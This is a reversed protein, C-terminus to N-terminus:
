GKVTKSRKQAFTNKRKNADKKPLEGEIREAADYAESIMNRPFSGAIRGYEIARVERAIKDTLVLLANAPAPTKIAKKDVIEQTVAYFSDIGVAASEPDHTLTAARILGVFAAM